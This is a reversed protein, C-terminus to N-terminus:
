RVIDDVIRQIDEDVQGPSAFPNLWDLGLQVANQVEPSIPDIGANVLAAGLAGQVVREIVSLQTGDHPCFAIEEQYERECHPCVVVTTPTGYERPLYRVGQTVRDKQINVPITRGYSELTGNDDRARVSFRYDGPVSLTLIQEYKGPRDSQRIARDNVLFDVSAFDSDRLDIRFMVKEGVEYYGDGDGIEFPGAASILPPLNGNGFDEGISTAQRDHVRIGDVVRKENPEAEVYYMRLQYVGPVLSYDARGDQTFQKTIVDDWCRNEDNWRAVYTKVSAWGDHDAATLRLSGKEFYQSDEVLVRDVIQIGELVRKENPSAELYYMRLQYIGPALSYDARGDQTFQKTIVDDWRRNEDNWRAVYTKVSAWGDQDTATLRLAGKEFSENKEVVAQDAIQIGEVVRKENPSAELYYMRLQYIGPALSYDARGDQTFQKTIVDDWRRNEDNWHAVYTKVSAWGDHDTATLRLLGKEFRASRDVVAGDSIEIGEIVRKENPSAELYYMRLQYVGPKLLYEARGDQTFQKNVVDVWKRNEDDWRAVYTKVSAWGDHDTATLRLTGKEFYQQNTQAVSAVSSLVVIILIVNRFMSM